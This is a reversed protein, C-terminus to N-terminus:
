GSWGVAERAAEPLPTGQWDPMWARTQREDLFLSGEWTYLVEALLRHESGVLARARIFAHPLWRAGPSGLARAWEAANAVLHGHLAYVELPSQPALDPDALEEATRLPKPLPAGLLARVGLRALDPLYTFSHGVSRNGPWPIAAKAKACSVMRAAPWAIAGPGFTDGARVVIVRNGSLEALQSYTAEIADRLRGPECRKDNVDALPPDAPLPVDYIVKFGYLNSPFLVAAGTQEAAACINDALKVLDRHWRHMPLELGATISACPGGAAARAVASPDEWDADVTRVEEGAARLAAVAARGFCSQSGVVVHM